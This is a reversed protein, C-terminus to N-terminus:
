FHQMYKVAPETKAVSKKVVKSRDSKSRMEISSDLIALTDPSPMRYMSLGLENPAIIQSFSRTYYKGM